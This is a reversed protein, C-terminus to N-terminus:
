NKHKLVVNKYTGGIANRNICIDVTRILRSNACDLVTYEGNFKGCNQLIVKEGYYFEELLDRSLGIIKQRYPNLSDIKFGCSTLLPTNDTQAKTANYTTVTVLYAEKEFTDVISYYLDLYLSDRYKSKNELKNIREEQLVYLFVLTILGILIIGGLFRLLLTDRITKTEENVDKM